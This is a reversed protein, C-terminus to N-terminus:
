PLNFVSTAGRRFTDQPVGTDFDSASVLIRALGPKTSGAQEITLTRTILTPGALGSIVDVVRAPGRVSSQPKPTSANLDAAEATPPYDLEPSQLDYQLQVTSGNPTVTFTVTTKAPLATVPSPKWDPNSLTAM